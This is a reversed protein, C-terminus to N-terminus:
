PSDSLDVEVRVALIYLYFLIIFISGFIWILTTLTLKRKLSYRNFRSITVTLGVRAAVEIPLTIFALVVGVFLPGFFEFIPPRGIATASFADHFYSFAFIAMSISLISLVFVWVKLPPTQQETM